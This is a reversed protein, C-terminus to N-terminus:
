RIKSLFTDLNDPRPPWHLASTLYDNAQVPDISKATQLEAIAEEKKQAQLLGLALYVHAEPSRPAIAAAKRFQAVAEDYRGGQSFETGANLFTDYNHRPDQLLMQQAIQLNHKAASINPDLKLAKDTADVATALASTRASGYPLSRAKMIMATGLAVHAQPYWGTSELRYRQLIPTALHIARELHDIARDPDSLQLAQGLSYEATPNPPTVAISHTFLTDSDKWYSTQRFAVAMLACIIVAASLALAQRPVPLKSASWAIAIFPGIFAFYTYRDAIAAAGLQVFGILPILTILFWLWGAVLWPARERWMFVAITIAALLLAAMVALLTDITELPYPIALHIPVFLKGLYRVYGVVALSLRESAPAMEFSQMGGAGQQGLIAAIGGLISLAFLPLKEFVLPKLDAARRLRGLPWYDLLLLVIPLTVYTQKALLSLAMTVATWAIRRRSWAVLALMAFLTSLVDKRESIWAVSEVHMPHIAFLAAVFASAWVRATMRRLAVFLLCASVLHLLANVLLQPGAHMGFIRVDLMHSIWTLPLWTVSTSTLAWTVDFNRVAANNVVFAGDDYNIFQHSVLQGFVIATLVALGGLIGWEAPGWPQVTVAAVPRPQPAAPAAAASAKRRSKRGM